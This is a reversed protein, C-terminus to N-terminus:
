PEDRVATQIESLLDLAAESLQLGDFTKLMWVVYGPDCRIVTETTENRYKGFTLRTELGYFSSRQVLNRLAVRVLTHMDVGRSVAMAQLVEGVGSELTIYLTDQAVVAPKRTRKPALKKAAAKKPAPKARSRKARSPEASIVRATSM